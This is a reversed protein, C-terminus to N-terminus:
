LEKLWEIAGIIGFMEDDEDWEDSADYFNKAKEIDCDFYTYLQKALAYMMEEDGNYEYCSIQEAASDLLASKRLINESTVEETCLMKHKKNAEEMQEKSKYYSGNLGTYKEM